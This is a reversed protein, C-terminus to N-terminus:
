MAQQRDPRDDRGVGGLVSKFVVLDFEDRLPIETADLSQYVIRGAVQHRGHLTRAEDTVDPYDSCVVDHGRWALWLSLGGSRAGIELARLPSQGLMHDWYRLARSWTTADWGVADRALDAPLAGGRPPDVMSM